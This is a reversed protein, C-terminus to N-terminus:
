AIRRRRVVTGLALLSAGVLLATAPEPIAGPTDPTCEEPLVTMSGRNVADTPQWVGNTEGAGAGSKDSPIPAAKITSISVISVFTLLLMVKLIASSKM